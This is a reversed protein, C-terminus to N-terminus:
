RGEKFYKANVSESLFNYSTSMYANVAAQGFIVWKSREPTDLNVLSFRSFTKVPILCITNMESLRIVPSVFAAKVIMRCFTNRNSPSSSPPLGSSNWFFILRSPMSSSKSLLLVGRKYCTFNSNQEFIPLSVISVIALNAPDSNRRKNM